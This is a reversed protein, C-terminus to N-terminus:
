SGPPEDGQTLEAAAEPAGFGFYIVLHGQNAKEGFTTSFSPIHHPDHPLSRSESADRQSAHVSGAAV